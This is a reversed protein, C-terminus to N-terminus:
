SKELRTPLPLLFFECTIQLPSNVYMKYYYAMLDVVAIQVYPSVNIKFNLSLRSMKTNDFPRFGLITM